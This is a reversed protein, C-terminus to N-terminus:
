VWSMEFGEEGLQVEMGLSCSWGWAAGGDGLQLEMGLSCRWGWAAGGDGLQVEMGLSCRWGWAAGGYCACVEDHKHRSSLIDLYWWFVEQKLASDAKFLRELMKTALTAIVLSIHHTYMPIITPAFGM